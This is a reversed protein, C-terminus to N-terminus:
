AVPSATTRVSSPAASPRAVAAEIAAADAIRLPVYRAGMEQALTAAAAGPRTGTDILVAGIANRRITRAAALADETAQARGVGSLPVNARGDTLVLLTPELGERAAGIALRLGAILGAALPTGGGAPLAALARKARTLSPTPPLLVEASEKRFAVLAVEDRRVYAKALVREVAGKAEAMRAFAQSGSADVCFITLTAGKSRTRRIRLDDRRVPIRSAEAPARLRRWPAAATLTEVLALRGARGPIGQRVGTPRGRGGKVIQGARGANARALSATQLGSLVDPDISAVVADVVRDAAPGDGGPEGEPKDDTEEPTQPAPDVAPDESPLRTARPALVLLAARTADEQTVVSTGRLAAIAKAAAVVQLTTRMSSVGLAVAAAALDAAIADPLDVSRWDEALRVLPEDPANSPLIFAVREALRPDVRPDDAEGEDLLILPRAQLRTGDPSNAQGDLFRSLIGVTEPSLREASPVIIFPENGSLLGAMMTPRGSELTATLDLGGVLRDTEVGLPLRRSGELRALLRTREPCLPGRLLIGGFTEPAAHALTLCLATAEQASLTTEPPTPM